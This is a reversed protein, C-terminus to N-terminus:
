LDLKLKLWFAAFQLNFKRHVLNFGWEVFKSQSM